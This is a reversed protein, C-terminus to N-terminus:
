LEREETTLLKHDFKPRYKLTLGEAKWYEALYNSVAYKEAEYNDDSSQISCHKESGPGPM